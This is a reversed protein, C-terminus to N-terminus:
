SKVRKNGYSGQQNGNGFNGRKNLSMDGRNSYQNRGGQNQYGYNGTNFKKGRNQGGEAEQKELVELRKELYEKNKIGIENSEDENLADFRVCLASKAALTRSIKGKVRNSASGVLKTQYIIGYKPTKKKSRMAKFLAKEAGLIQLTSASNKALNLLSGSKSILKAAIMEGVLASLNPAVTMMRNSIYEGLRTRSADLELVQSALGLIFEEDQETIDTGMSIEAAHRVEQAIDEAVIEEINASESKTRIGITQVVKAYMVNEPIIKTLEPFHYGYWERLRMMYNNIEKDLDQYLNVAQIIMTDIKDASFKIKFRGLGHALGLSMNKFDEETINSLLDGMALRVCRSLEEVQDNSVCTIGLKESISKAFKKDIVLLQSKSDKKINKLLFKKLTNGVKGHIIKVAARLVENTNKFDKFDTLTIWKKIEETEKPFDKWTKAKKFKVSNVNFLALGASTEFLLKM